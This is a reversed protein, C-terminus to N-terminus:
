KVLAGESLKVDLVTDGCLEQIKAPTHRKALTPVVSQAIMSVPTRNALLKVLNYDPTTTVFLYLDRIASLWDTFVDPKNTGYLHRFEVTSLGCSHEHTGIPCLNFATYKSWKAHLTQLPHKYISPLFTYSLPVCYINNQRKTGVFEFFLPELLAYTLIFQKLENEEMGAVNVHVHISTRDSFPAPGTKLDKHLKVFSEIAQEYTMPGRTYEVGNDRLSDDNTIKWHNSAYTGHDKIQEIELEVGCYFERNDISVNRWAGSFIEGVRM